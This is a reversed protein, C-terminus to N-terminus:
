QVGTSYRYDNGAQHVGFSSNKLFCTHFQVIGHQTGNFIRLAKHNLINQFGGLWFFNYVPFYTALFLISM